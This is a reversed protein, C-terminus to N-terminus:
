KSLSGLEYDKMWKVFVDRVDTAINNSPRLKNIRNILSDICEESLNLKKFITKAEKCFGENNFKNGSQMNSKLAYYETLECLADFYRKEYKSIKYEEYCIKEDHYLMTQISFGFTMSYYQAQQLTQWAKDYDGAKKYLNVLSLWQNFSNWSTGKLLIDSYVKICENIDGGDDYKKRAKNIAEIEKDDEEQQKKMKKIELSYDKNQISKQNSKSEKKKFLSFM